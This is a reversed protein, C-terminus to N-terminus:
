FIEIEELEELCDLILSAVFNEDEESFTQICITKDIIVYRRNYSELINKIKDTNNDEYVFFLDSQVGFEDIIHPLSEILDKHYWDIFKIYMKCCKKFTIYNTINEDLKIRFKM